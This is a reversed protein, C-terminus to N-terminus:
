YIHLERVLSICYEPNDISFDQMDWFAVTSQVSEQTM